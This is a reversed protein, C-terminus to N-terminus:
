TALYFLSESAVNMEDPQCSILLGVVLGDVVEAVTDLIFDAVDEGLQHKQQGLSTKDAKVNFVDIAGFYLRFGVFVSKYPALSNLLVTCFQKFFDIHQELLNVIGYGLVIYRLLFRHLESWFRQGSKYIVEPVREVLFFDGPVFLLFLMAAFLLFLYLLKFLM